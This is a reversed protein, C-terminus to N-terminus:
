ADKLAFVIATAWAIFCLVVAPIMVFLWELPLAVIAVTAGFFGAMGGARTRESVTKVGLSMTPLVSVSPPKLFYVGLYAGSSLVAVVSGVWFLLALDGVRLSIVWLLAGAIAITASYALFPVQWSAGRSRAINVQQLLRSTGIAAVGAVLALAVLDPRLAM